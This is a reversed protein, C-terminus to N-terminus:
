RIEIEIREIFGDGSRPKVEDTVGVVEDDHSRIFLFALASQVDHRFGQGSQVQLEFRLLGADRREGSAKIKEPEGEAILEIFLEELFGGQFFGDEDARGICEDADVLVCDDDLFAIFDDRLERHAPDSLEDEKAGVGERGFQDLLEGFAADGRRETRGGAFIDIDDLGIGLRMVVDSEFVSDAVGSEAFGTGGPFGGAYDAGFKGVVEVEDAGLRAGGRFEAAVDELVGEDLQAVGFVDVGNATDFAAGGAEGKPEEIASGAVRVEHGM